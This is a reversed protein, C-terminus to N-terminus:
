KEQVRLDIFSRRIPASRHETAALLSPIGRRYKVFDVVQAAESAYSIQCADIVDVSEENM